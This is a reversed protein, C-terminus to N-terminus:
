LELTKCLLCEGDTVTEVTQQVKAAAIITLAHMYKILFLKLMPKHHTWKSRHTWINVSCHGPHPTHALKNGQGKNPVLHMRSYSPHSSIFRTKLYLEFGKKESTVRYIATVWAWSFSFRAIHLCGGEYSSAVNMKGCRCDRDFDFLSLFGFWWMQRHAFTTLM